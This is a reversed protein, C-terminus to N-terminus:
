VPADRSAFIRRAQQKRLEIRKPEASEVRAVNEQSYLEEHDADTLYECDERTDLSACVKRLGSDELGARKMMGSAEVACAEVVVNIAEIGRKLDELIEKM